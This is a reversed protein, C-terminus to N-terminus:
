THFIFVTTLHYTDNNMPWGIPEHIQAYTVFGDENIDVNVCILHIVSLEINYVVFETFVSTYYPMKHMVYVAYIVLM